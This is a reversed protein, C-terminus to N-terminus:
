ASKNKKSSNVNRKPVIRPIHLRVPHASPPLVAGPLQRKEGVVPERGLNDELTRAYIRDAEEIAAADFKAKAAATAAVADAAAKDAMVKAVTADARARQLQALDDKRKAEMSEQFQEETMPAHVPEPLPAPAPAAETRRVVIAHRAHNLACIAERRERISEANQAARTAAVNDLEAQAEALLADEEQAKQLM